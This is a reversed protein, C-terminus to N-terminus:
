GKKTFSSLGQGEVNGVMTADPKTVKMDTSVYAWKGDARQRLRLREDVREWKLTNKTKRQLRVSVFADSGDVPPASDEAENVLEFDKFDWGEAFRLVDKEWIVRKSRKSGVGVVEADEPVYEKADPHTSAVIFAPLVNCLASFRARVLEIPSPSPNAGSHIPECCDSYKKGTGCSCQSDGAPATNARPKESKSKGFGAMMRLSSGDGRGRVHLRGSSALFASAGLHHRFAFSGVLLLLSATLGRMM